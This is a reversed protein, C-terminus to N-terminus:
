SYKHLQTRYTSAFHRVAVLLMDFCCAAQLMQCTSHQLNGIAEVHQQQQNLMLRVHLVTIDRKIVVASTSSELNQKIANSHIGIDYTKQM